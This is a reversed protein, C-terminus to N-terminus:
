DALWASMSLRENTPVQLRAAEQWHMECTAVTLRQLAWACVKQGYHRIIDAHTGEPHEQMFSAM